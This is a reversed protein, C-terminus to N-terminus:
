FARRPIFSLLGRSILLSRSGTREYSINALCFLGSSCLGHAVMLAFSGCVEWYRLTMIGGIVLVIHAVSSYAILSKLDTQRMCILRVLFGRGIECFGLDVWKWALYMLRDYRFRPLTGRVWIFLYSLFSLRIYFFLSDLDCGLFVCFLLRM